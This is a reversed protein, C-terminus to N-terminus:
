TGAAITRPNFGHRFRSSFLRKGHLFKPPRVELKTYDISCQPSLVANQSSFRCVCVANQLMRMPNFAHMTTFLRQIGKPAGMGHVAPGLEIITDTM